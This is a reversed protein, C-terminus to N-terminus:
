PGAPREGTAPLMDAILHRNPIDLRRLIATIQTEVTRPSVNRRRAIAANSMGQVALHAVQKQAPTLTDWPQRPLSQRSTSNPQDLAIAIVAAMTATTGRKYSQGYTATDLTGRALTEARATAAAFPALGPLDLGTRRRCRHAAGLLYAITAATQTPHPSDALQEAQAWAIAHIAWVTGWRDDTTDGWYLVQRLLTLAEDPDDHRLLAIGRVLRAWSTAREAGATVAHALCRRTVEHAQEPTGTFAAAMAETMETRTVDGHYDPGAATFGERASALLPLARPDAHAHLLHAGELFLVVPPPPRHGILAHCTDLYTQAPRGQWLAIWGAMAHGTVVQDLQDDTLTPHTAATTALARHLLDLGERPSGTFFWTRLRTLSAAFDVADVTHDPDALTAEFTARLNPLNTEAWEQWDVEHPSFWSRAAQRTRSRYYASHRAVLVADDGHERLKDLGYRRITVLM